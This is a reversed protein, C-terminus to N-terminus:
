SFVKHVKWSRAKIAHMSVTDKKEQYLIKRLLQTNHTSLYNSNKVMQQLTKDCLATNYIIEKWKYYM